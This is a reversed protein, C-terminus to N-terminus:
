YAAEEHSGSREWPIRALDPRHHDMENAIGVGVGEVSIVEEGSLKVM